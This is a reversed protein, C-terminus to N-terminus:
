GIVLAVIALILVLLIIVGLFAAAVYAAIMWPAQSGQASADGEALRRVAQAAQRALAPMAASGMGVWHWGKAPTPIVLRQGQFAQLWLRLAESPRAVLEAPLIVVQAAALAEDPVGQNYAHVEVPLDPAQRQIADMLSRSFAEPHDADQEGAEEPTLILVPFQAYRRSLSRQALRNDRMLLRWHYLLVFGFLFLLALGPLVDNLLDPAPSDLLAQLLAFLQAGGSIMVGLVSAFLVLFLYGRRVPSRRAHDGAEGEQAAEAQLPRWSLIWLPLGVWLAALGAALSNKQAPQSWSAPDIALNILFDLLAALGVFSAMLGALSAFYGYLRQMGARRGAATGSWGSRGTSVKAPRTETEVSATDSDAVSAISRRLFRMEYLWLLGFPLILSIPPAIEALFAAGQPAAGLIFLLAYYLAVGAATLTVALSIFVVLYLVALRLSSNREESDNLSRRVLRELWWWLPTGVLLLALGNALYTWPEVDGTGWLTLIALLAQQTGAVVLALSYLLWLYRYLRRTEIWPRAYQGPAERSTDEQALALGDGRAVWYFYGGALLNILIAVLNDTLSQTGGFLAWFSDVGFAQLFLRDLAAVANQVAPVGTTLLVGFLFIARLRDSREQIDRRAGRQAIWWHLGFVPTSVLLLALAGALSDTEQRLNAGSLFFRVLGISGWVVIELSIFAVLYIYLRRIM